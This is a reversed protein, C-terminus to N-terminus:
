YKMGIQFTGDLVVVTLIDTTQKNKLNCIHRRKTQGTLNVSRAQMDLSCRHTKKALKQIMEINKLLLQVM